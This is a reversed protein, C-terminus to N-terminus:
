YRDYRHSSGDYASITFFKGGSDMTIYCTHYEIHDAINTSTYYSVFLQEGSWRSDNQKEMYRLWTTGKKILGKDIASQMFGSSNRSVRSVTGTRGSIEILWDNYSWTGDLSTNPTTTGGNDDGPVNIVCSGLTFIIVAILATLGFLTKLNKM